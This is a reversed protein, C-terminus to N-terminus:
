NIFVQNLWSELILVASISHIKDKSLGKFGHKNFILSRAEITSLREDHLEVSTHFKHKLLNAFKKAKKTINQHTGDMNLPLGVITYNPEWTKFLYKVDNWNPHGNHASLKKLAKGQKLINEGIAVGINKIGFDFAIIINKM